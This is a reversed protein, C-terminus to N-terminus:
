PPKGSDVHVKSLHQGLVALYLNWWFPVDYLTFIGDKVQFLTKMVACKRLTPNNPIAAKIPHYVEDLALYKCSVSLSCTSHLFSSFFKSFLTIITRSVICLFYRNCNNNRKGKAGKSDNSWNIRLQLAQLSQNHFTVQKTGLTYHETLVSELDM